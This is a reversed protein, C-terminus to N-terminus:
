IFCAGTLIREISIIYKNFGVTGPLLALCAKMFGEYCDSAMEREVFFGQEAPSACSGTSVARCCFESIAETGAACIM